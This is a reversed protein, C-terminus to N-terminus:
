PHLYAILFNERRSWAMSLWEHGGHAMDEFIAKSATDLKRELGDCIFAFADAPYCHRLYGRQRLELLSKGYTEVVKQAPKSSTRLVKPEIEMWDYIASFAKEDGKGADDSPAKGSIAEKAKRLAELREEEAVDRNRQKAVEEMEDLASKERRDGIIRSM